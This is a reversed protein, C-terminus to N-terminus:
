TGFLELPTDTNKDCAEPQETKQPETQIQATRSGTNQSTDTLSKKKATKAVM